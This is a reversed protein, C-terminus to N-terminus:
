IPYICMSMPHIVLLSHGRNLKIARKADEFSMLARERSEVTDFDIAQNLVRRVILLFAM